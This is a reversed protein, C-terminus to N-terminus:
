ELISVLYLHTKGMFFSNKSSFLALFHLLIVIGKQDFIRDLMGYSRILRM